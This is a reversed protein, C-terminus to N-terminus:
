QGALESLFTIVAKSAMVGSAVCDGLGIGHYSCGAVFLGKSHSLRTEISQVRDIHGVTYQPREEIWRHIRTMVPKSSVGFIDSLEDRVVKLLDKDDLSALEQNRYGGVFVRLLSYKPDPVRYNWKTSSLTVASIKRKEVAPIVMGFGDPIRGLEDSKFALSLNASSTLPIERLLGAVTHDLRELIRAAQHSVTTIVVADADLPENGDSFLVRYGTGNERAVRELSV